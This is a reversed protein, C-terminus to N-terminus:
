KVRRRSFFAAMLGFLLLAIASPQPVYVLGVDGLDGGGALSGVVSLDDVWIEGSNADYGISTPAVINLRKETVLCHCFRM